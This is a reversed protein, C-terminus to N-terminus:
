RVGLVPSLSVHQCWAGGNQISKRSESQQRQLVQLDCPFKFWRKVGTCGDGHGHWKAIKDERFHGQLATPTQHGHTFLAVAAHLPWKRMSWAWFGCQRLFHPSDGQLCYPGVTHFSVTHNWEKSFFLHLPGWTNQQQLKSGRRCHQKRLDSAELAATRNQM